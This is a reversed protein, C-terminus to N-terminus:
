RSSGSLAAHEAGRRSGKDASDVSIRHLRGQGAPSLLGSLIANTEDRAAHSEPATATGKNAKSGELSLKEDPSIEGQGTFILRVRSRRTDLFAKPYFVKMFLHVGTVVLAAGAISSLFVVLLDRWM